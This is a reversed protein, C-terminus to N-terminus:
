RAEQVERRVYPAPFWDGRHSVGKEGAEVAREYVTDRAKEALARIRRTDATLTGDRKVFRGAVLVSDVDGAHSGLAVSGYIHNMPAHHLTDARLLVVDAQKGPTLTGIRDEMWVSRSGEVTAMELMDQCTMQLREPMSNSLEHQRGRETAALTRFTGFMDGLANIVIDIGLSPRRGINMLRSAAPWGLGFHTESDPTVSPPPCGADTILKLEAETSANCHVFLMDAGLLGTDHLVLVPTENAGLRSGNGAHISMKLDLDRALGIDHHTVDSTTYEPGRPSAAMTVLGDDSSFYQDRIRRFLAADSPVDSVPLWLENPDGMGFVVRGGSDRLAEVAADACDPSNINHAWDFITTIGMDLAEVVGVLNAAYIEDPGLYNGLQGRIGAFYQSGQWDAAVNRFLSEWVHRHTDIFGPLAFRGTADVVEADGADITPAVELIRADEILIDGNELLGIEPAMSLVTANRILLRSM